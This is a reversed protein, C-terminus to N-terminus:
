GGAGQDQLSRQLRRRAGRVRLPHGRRGLEHRLRLIAGTIQSSASAVESVDLFVPKGAAAVTAFAAFVQDNSRDTLRGALRVVATDSKLEVDVRAHDPYVFQVLQSLRSSLAQPVVDFSLLRGLALADDWYRKALKPERTIRWVWEMGLAQWRGPAREITGAVFNVAAGFHSRIPVRLRSGNRMLWAQGRAAGLAVILFDPQADNIADIVEQRSLEEMSGFGPDLAGVCCIAPSRSANLKRRALDAVGSAGGLFFVRLPRGLGNDARARLVELIDAGSVRAIPRGCVLKCLLLVGVGDVTCLDSEILSNRFGRDRASLAIFNSNVTSILLPERTRAAADIERVVAAMDVLDIPIGTIELSAHAAHFVFTAWKTHIHAFSLSPPNM